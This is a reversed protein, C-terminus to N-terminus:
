ILRFFNNFAHILKKVESFVHRDIQIDGHDLLSTALYFSKRKNETLKHHLILSESAPIVKDNKGHIFVVPCSICQVKDEVNLDQLWKQVKNDKKLADQFFQLRQSPNDAYKKWIQYEKSPCAQILKPLELNEKSRKMGNDKLAAWVLNKFIENQGYNIHYFNKFIINRGYDDIDQKSLVFHLSNRINAYTGISAIVSVRGKLKPHSLALLSMGATYSPVFLGCKGQPCVKIDQTICYLFDRIQQVIIPDITLSNLLPFSPLIVRYGTSALQKSLNIIRPDKVGLVGFGNIVVICKKSKGKKPIFLSYSYDDLEGKIITENLSLARNSNTLSFFLFKLAHVFAFM